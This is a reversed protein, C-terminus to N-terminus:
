PSPERPSRLEFVPHGRAVSIFEDLSADPAVDVTRRLVFGRVPLALRPGLAEKLVLGAAEPSLEVAAIAQRRRGHTLIGEGAARLNRVWNSTGGDHTAILWRRDDREFLDVPITRLQGTTRGRVTLLVIPGLPVGARLLRKAIRTGGLVLAHRIKKAMETM